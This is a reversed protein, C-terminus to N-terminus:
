VTVQLVFPINNLIKCKEIHLLHFTFEIRFICSRLSHCFDRVFLMENKIQKIKSWSVCVFFHSRHSTSKNIEM